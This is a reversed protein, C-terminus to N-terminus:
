EVCDSCQENGTDRVGAGLEGFELKDEPVALDSMGDVEVAVEDGAAELTQALGEVGRHGSGLLRCDGCLRRIARPQAQHGSSGSRRPLAM